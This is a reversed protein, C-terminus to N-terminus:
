TLRVTRYPAVLSRIHVPIPTLAAKESSIRHEYWHAVLLRMAQRLPEPVATEDSGYGVTFDIEIGNLARGAQPKERMRIRAPRSLGDVLYSTPSLLTENGDQDYTRIATVARLPTRAVPITGDKPWADLYLRWSQQIFAQATQEELVERAAKILSALLGDDDDQDLRLFLKIDDLRLPELAPGSVHQLIM